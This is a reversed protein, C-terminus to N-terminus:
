RQDFGLIAAGDPEIAAGDDVLLVACDLRDIAPKDHEATYRIEDIFAAAFDEGVIVARDFEVARGNGVVAACNRGDAAVGLDLEGIREDAAACQFGIVAADDFGNVPAAREVTDRDSAVAVQRDVGAGRQRQAAARDHVCARQADGAVAREVDFGALACYKVADGHPIAASDLDAIWSPVSQMPQWPVTSIVVQWPALRSPTMTQFRPVM